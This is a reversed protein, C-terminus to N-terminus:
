AVDDERHSVVVVEMKRLLEKHWMYGRRVVEVITGEPRSLDYVTEAVKHWRPDFTGEINEIPSVGQDQLVQRLKRYVTRFNRLWKGMQKTVEEQKAEVNEFVRQFDDQVDLIALLHKKMRDHGATESERLQVRAEGLQHLLDGVDRRIVEFRDDGGDEPWARVPLPQESIEFLKDDEGSRAM